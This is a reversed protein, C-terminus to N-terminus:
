LQRLCGALRFHALLRHLIAQTPCSSQRQSTTVPSLGSCMWGICRRSHLSRPTRSVSSCRGLADIWSDAVTMLAGELTPSERLLQRVAESIHEIRLLELVLV